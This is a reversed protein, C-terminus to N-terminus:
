TAGNDKLYKEYQEIKYIGDNLGKVFGLFVKMQSPDAYGPIQFIKNWRKDFIIINPTGKVYFGVALSTSNTKKPPTQDGMEYENYVDQSISYINFDESLKNLDKDKVFDSQLIACYPCKKKEFVFIVGKGNAVLKKDKKFIPGALLLTGLCIFLLLKKM